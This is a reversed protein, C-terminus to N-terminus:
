SCPQYQITIKDVNSPNVTQMKQVTHFLNLSIVVELM